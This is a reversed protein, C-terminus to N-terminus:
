LRQRVSNNYQVVSCFDGGRLTPLCDKAIDADVFMDQTGSRFDTKVTSTNGSSSSIEISKVFGNAPLLNAGTNIINAASAPALATDTCNGEEGKFLGYNLPSDNVSNRWAYMINNSLCIWRLDAGNDKVTPTASGYNIDRSIEEHFGRSASNLQSIYSAKQYQKGMGIVVAMVLMMAMSFISIAIMIEIITFGKSGIRSYGM